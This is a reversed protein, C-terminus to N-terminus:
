RSFASRPRLRANLECISGFSFSTGERVRYEKGELRLVGKAKAAQFTGLALM